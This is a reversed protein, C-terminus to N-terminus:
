CTSCQGQGFFFREGAARDGTVAQEAAPSNLSHVLTALADLQSGPLDFAPMGLLPIGKRILAHLWSISRKRLEPQGTLAPGQDTGHADPGHCGACKVAFIRLGEKVQQESGTSAQGSLLRAGLALMAAIATLISRRQPECSRAGPKGRFRSTM